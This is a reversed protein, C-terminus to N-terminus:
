SARTHTDTVTDIIRTTDEGLDVGLRRATASLHDVLECVKDMNGAQYETRLCGAVLDEHDPSVLLGQTLAWRALEVNGAEM